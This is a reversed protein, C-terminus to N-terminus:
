NDKGRAIKYSEWRERLEGVVSAYVFVVVMIMVLFPAIILRRIM